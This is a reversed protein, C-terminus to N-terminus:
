PTHSNNKPCYSQSLSGNFRGPNGERRSDHERSLLVFFVTHLRQILSFSLCAQAGAPRLLTHQRCHLLLFIHTPKHPAHSSPVPLAPGDVPGSYTRFRPAPHMTPHRAAGRGGGWGKSGGPVALQGRPRPCCRGGTPLGQLLSTFTLTKLTTKCKTPAESTHLCCTLVAREKGALGLSSSSVAGGATM